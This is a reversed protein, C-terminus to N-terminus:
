APKRGCFYLMPTFIGLEGGEVLADGGAHLFQSVQVTGKPVAKLREAASLAVWTLQRGIRTRRIGTFTLERGTLPLYWPTEPDSTPARDEVEVVEFGADKLAQETEPITAIDPLGDGEEIGKKIRRHEPNEPDYLDTLCWEYGAFRGGPKLVRFLERFLATKDPAHCTAEFAYIADFTGDAQPLHMFDAEEFECLDSLGAAENRERARSIQYANNNVGVITAGSFRAISRMPGGVGCGVDLVRMGKQLGLKSAIFHQHRAISALFPEGRFRPAFHFSDGWGYTYFDTVLNYFNKVMDAYAAKRSELRGGESEDHLHRYNAVDDRVDGRDHGPRLEGTSTREM